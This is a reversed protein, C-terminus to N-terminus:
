LSKQTAPPVWKCGESYVSEGAKWGPVDKMVEAEVRVADSKAAVWRRDEEAQLLPVISRRLAFKEERLERRAINGQGVKYMGYSIIAASAVFMAMGSPGRRAMDRRYRVPPFGGPRPGDQKAPKAWGPVQEIHSMSKDAGYEANISDRICM